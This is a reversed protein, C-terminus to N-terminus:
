IAPLGIKKRLEMYRPDDCLCDAWYLKFVFRFDHEEYAKELYDLAQDKQELGAYVVAYFYAPVYRQEAEAELRKIVAHAEATKGARGYAYGLNPLVELSGEEGLLDISKEFAAFAEPYRELFTYIIGLGWFTTWSDPNLEQVELAKELSEEYRGAYLYAWPVNSAIWANHPDLRHAAETLTIAEDHRELTGLIQGYFVRTEAASPNLEITRKYEAEAGEFDWSIAKANGQFAHATPLTDDLELAKQIAAASQEMLEPKQQLQGLFLKAESLGVYAPAFGPDIAIASEFHGIAQKLNEMSFNRNLYWGHFVHDLVKADVSRAAALLMQERPTIVAGIEAAIDRAVDSQLLLIDKMDRTYNESWLQLNTPGHSLWVTLNVSEKDRIVSGGVFAAADLERSFVPLFQDLGRYHMASAISTVRLSGIKQLESILLSTLADEFYTQEEYKGLNKFPLVAISDIELGAAAPAAAPIAAPTEGATSCSQLCFAALVAAIIIGSWAALLKGPMRFGSPRNSM